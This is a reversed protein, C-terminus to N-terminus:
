RYDKVLGKRIFMADLIIGDISGNSHWKVQIDWCGSANPLARARFWGESGAATNAHCQWGIVAASWLNTSYLTNTVSTLDEGANPLSYSRIEIPAANSITFGANANVAGTVSLSGAVSLAGAFSSNGTVNLTGGVTSNGTLTSTGQVTLNNTINLSGSLGQSTKKVWLFDNTAMNGFTTANNASTANTAWLAYTARDANAAKSAESSHLAYPASVLKQRPSIENTVTVSGSPTAAISLGLWRDQDGFADKLYNTTGSGILGGSDDIVVNFLGNTAVYVPFSRAFLCNAPETLTASNWIRFQIQYVGPALPRGVSDTLSGQYNMASPSQALGPSAGALLLASILLAASIFGLPNLCFALIRVSTLKEPKSNRKTNMTM